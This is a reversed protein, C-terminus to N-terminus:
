IIILGDALLAQKVDILYKSIEASSIAANFSHEKSAAPFHTVVKPVTISAYNVPTRLELLM